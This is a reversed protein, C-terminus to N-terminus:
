KLNFHLIFQNFLGPMAAHPRRWPMTGQFVPVKSLWFVINLLLVLYYKGPYYKSQICKTYGHAVIKTYLIVHARWNQGRNHVNLTNSHKPFSPYPKTYGYNHISIKLLKGAPPYKVYALRQKCPFFFGTMPVPCTKTIIFFIIKTPFPPTHCRNNCFFGTLTTIPAHQFEDM